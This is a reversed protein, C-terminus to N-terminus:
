FVKEILKEKEFDLYVVSRFCNTENIEEIDEVLNECMPDAYEQLHLKIKVDEQGTLEAPFFLIACKNGSIQNGEADLPFKAETYEGEPEGNIMLQGTLKHYLGEASNVIRTEAFVGKLNIPSSENVICDIYEKLVEETNEREKFITITYITPESYYIYPKNLFLGQYYSHVLIEYIGNEYEDIYLTFTKRNDDKLIKWPENTEQGAINHTKRIAIIHNCMDSLEGNDAAIRINIDEDFVNGELNFAEAKVPIYKPFKKVIIQRKEKREMTECLTRIFSSIELFQTCVVECKNCGVCEEQVYGNEKSLAALDEMPSRSEGLLKNYASFIDPIKIGKPCRKCYGCKTCEIYPQELLLKGASTLKEMDEKELAINREFLEVNKKVQELTTVGSLTTAVGDLSSAYLMGLESFSVGYKEAVSNVLERIQENEISSLYGGRLPSMAIIKLNKENALDLQLKVDPRALDLYSLPLQVFSLEKGYKNIVYEFTEYSCHFSVGLHKIRGEAKRETLLKFIELEEITEITEDTIGHSLYYDFYETGMRAFQEEFLDEATTEIDCVHLKHALYFTKRDYKSILCERLAKAAKGDLYLHGVDFYNVGKEILYSVMEDVKDILVNGAEDIPLRLTGMGLKSILNEDFQTYQM